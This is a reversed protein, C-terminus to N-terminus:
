VLTNDAKPPCNYYYTGAAAEKEIINNLLEMRDVLKENIAKLQNNESKINKQEDILRLMDNSNKTYIEDISKGSFVSRPAM